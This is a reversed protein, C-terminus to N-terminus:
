LSHCKKVQLKAESPLQENSSVELSNISIARLMLLFAPFAPSQKHTILQCQAVMVSRPEVVPFLYESCFQDPNQAHTCIPSPCGLGKDARKESILTRTLEARSLPFTAKYNFYELFAADEM